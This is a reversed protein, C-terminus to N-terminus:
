PIKELNSPTPRGGRWRADRPPMDPGDRYAVEAFGRLRKSAAERRTAVEDLERALWDCESAKHRCWMALRRAMRESLHREPKALVNKAVGRTTGLRDALLATFGPYERLSWPFLAAVVRYPLTDKRPSPRACRRCRRTHNTGAKEFTGNM